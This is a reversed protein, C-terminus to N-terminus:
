TKVSKKKNKYSKTVATQKEHKWMIYWQQLISLSNNVIWYLVLGSPFNWFLATFIVPLFMFVKAQMPDAPPPNLKQQLFMTLGMVLPFIHWPDKASLDHIWLYFPAQRLEVSEILVWYLAIFFPIQVLIPLCGGLPNVKEERYMAMTAQSLKQKDDGYREKLAEMKPQLKRMNAMSRYSKASLRYFALKILFTVLIIAVGWNGVVNEIKQMVWFIPEALFWLIGYDVTLGLKPAVSNLANGTAPGVYLQTAVSTKQGPDVTILPSISGITYLNNDLKRTYFQNTQDQLPVWTSLFYHQQMAIWGGQSSKDVNEKSMDKFTVKQYPKDQTSLAAGFYAATSFGSSKALPTDTRVLQQYLKANFPQASQNNVQYAVGIAYDGRKFTFQKAIQIGDNTARTLTVVLQQEDDSLQYSTQSATFLPLETLSQGNQPVLSSEALYRFNNTDNFLIVPDKPTDVEQPYKPLSAFVVSGGRLDIKVELVDTKVTIMSQPNNVAPQALSPATSPTTVLTNTTTSPPTAPFGLSSDPTNNQVSTATAVTPAPHDQQWAQYLFFGIVMLAVILILRRQEMM